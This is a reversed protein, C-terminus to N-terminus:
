KKYEVMAMGLNGNENIKNAIGDAERKTKCWRYVYRHCGNTGEITKPSIDIVVKWKM